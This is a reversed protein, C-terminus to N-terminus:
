FRSGYNRGFVYYYSTLFANRRLMNTVATNDVDISNWEGNRDLIFPQGKIFFKMHIIEGRQGNNDMNASIVDVNWNHDDVIQLTSLDMYFGIGMRGHLLVYQLNNDLHQPYPYNQASYNLTEDTLRNILVMNNLDKFVFNVPVADAGHILEAEVVITDSDENVSIVSYLFEGVSEYHKSTLETIKDTSINLDFDNEGKWYGSLLLRAARNDDLKAAYTGLIRERTRTTAIKAQKNHIIVSFNINTGSYTISYERNDIIAHRKQGYPVAYNNEKSIELAKTVKEEDDGAASITADIIAVIANVPASDLNFNFNIEIPRDDPGISFGEYGMFRISKDYLIQFKGGEDIKVDNLTCYEVLMGQGRYKDELIKGATRKIETNYKTIFEDVTKPTSKSYGALIIM